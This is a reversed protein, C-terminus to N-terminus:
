ASQASVWDRIVARAAAPVDTFYIAVEYTPEAAAEVPDCRVVAGRLETPGAGPLDIAIGMMTMEEVPTSFECCLGSQSINKLRAPQAADTPSLRLPFAADVRRAGRRERGETRADTM